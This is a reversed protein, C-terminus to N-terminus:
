RLPWSNVTMPKCTQLNAKATNFFCCEHFHLVLMGSYPFYVIINIKGDGVSCTCGWPVESPYAYKPLVNCIKTGMVVM